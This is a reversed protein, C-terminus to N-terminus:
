REGAGGVLGRRRQERTRKSRCTADKGIALTSSEVMRFCCCSRDQSWFRPELLGRTEEAAEAPPRLQVSKSLFGNLKVREGQEALTEMQTPPGRSGAGRRARSTGGGVGELHQSRNGVERRRHSQTRRQRELARYHKWARSLHGSPWGDGGQGEAGRPLIPGAPRAGPGSQMDCKLEACAPNCSDVGVPGSEEGRGRVARM